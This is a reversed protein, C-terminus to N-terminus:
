VFRPLRIQHSVEGRPRGLARIAIRECVGDDAAGNINVAYKPWAEDFRRILLAQAVSQFFFPHAVLPLSVHRSSVPLDSEVLCVSRIEDDIAFNDDLQLTNRFQERNM